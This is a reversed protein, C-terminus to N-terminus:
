YYNMKRMEIVSAMLARIIRSVAAVSRTSGGSSAGTYLGAQQGTGSCVCVCGWGSGMGVPLLMASHAGCIKGKIRSLIVFPMFWSQGNGRSQM